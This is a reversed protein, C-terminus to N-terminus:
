IWALMKPSQALAQATRQDQQTNHTNKKKLYIFITM